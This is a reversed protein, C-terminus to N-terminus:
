AGNARRWAEGTDALAAVVRPGGVVPAIATLVGRLEDVTVGVEDGIALTALYSSPPAGLAVQAAFRVLAYTHDDLVSLERADAHMRGLAQLVAGSQAALELLTDESELRRPV